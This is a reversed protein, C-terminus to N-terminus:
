GISTQCSVDNRPCKFFALKLLENNPATEFGIFHNTKGRRQWNHSTIIDHLSPAVFAPSVTGDTLRKDESPVSSHRREHLSRTWVVAARWTWRWLRTLARTPLYATWPFKLNLVLRGWEYCSQRPLVCTAGSVNLEAKRELKAESM